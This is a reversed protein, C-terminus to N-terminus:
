SSETWEDIEKEISRLDKSTRSMAQEATDLAEAIEKALSEAKEIEADLEDQTKATKFSPPKFRSLVKKLGSKRKKKEVPNATKKEEDEDFAAGEIKPVSREDIMDQPGDTVVNAEITTNTQITEISNEDAEIQSEESEVNTIKMSREVADLSQSIERVLKQAEDLEKNLEETTKFEQPVIGNDKYDKNMEYRTKSDGKRAGETDLKSNKVENISETVVSKVRSPTNKVYLSAKEVSSNMSEVREHIAGSAKEVTDNLNEFQENWVGTAKGVSENLSEMQDNWVQEVEPGITNNYVSKTSKMALSGVRKTGWLTLKASAITAKGVLDLAEETLTTPPELQFLVKAKSVAKSESIKASFDKVDKVVGQTKELQEEVIQKTDELSGQVNNIAAQTMEVKEGVVQKTGDLSEQMKASFDRVDKVTERTKQVTQKTVDNVKRTVDQVDKFIKQSTGVANEINSPLGKIVDLTTKMTTEFVESTDDGPRKFSEILDKYRDNEVQSESGSKEIENQPKTMYQNSIPIDEIPVIVQEEEKKGFFPSLFDSDNTEVKGLDEDNARKEDLNLPEKLMQLQDEKLAFVPSKLDDNSLEESDNKSEIDDASLSERLSQLQNEKSAFFPSTSKEDTPTELKNLNISDGLIELQEEKTGFFPAAAESRKSEDQEMDERKAFFPSPIDNSGSKNNSDKGNTNEDLEKKAFFPSSSDEDDVDKIGLRSSYRLQKLIRVTPYSPSDQPGQRDFVQTSPLKRCGLSLANIFTGHLCIILM